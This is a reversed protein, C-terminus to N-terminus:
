DRNIERTHPQPARGALVRTEETIQIERDESLEFIRERKRLGLLKDEPLMQRWQSNASLAFRQLIKLRGSITDFAMGTAPGPMDDGGGSTQKLEEIEEVIESLSDYLDISLRYGAAAYEGLQRVQSRREFYYSTIYGAVIGAVTLLINLILNYSARAQEVFAVIVIVILSALVLWTFRKDIM